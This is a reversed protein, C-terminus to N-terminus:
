TDITPLIKLFLDDPLISYKSSFLEFATLLLSDNDVLYLYFDTFYLDHTM